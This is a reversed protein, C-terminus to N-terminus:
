GLLGDWLTTVEGKPKFFLGELRQEEMTDGRIERFINEWCGAIFGGVLSKMTFPTEIWIRELQLDHGGSKKEVLLPLLLFGGADRCSKGKGVGNM